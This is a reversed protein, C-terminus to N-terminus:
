TVQGTAAWEVARVLLRKFGLNDMAPADHGLLITLTRGKGYSGALVSPEWRGTGGQGTGSFSSALVEAGEALGPANWLEDRTSFSEIGETVPHPTKEARVQFEHIPGHSSQGDKWSALTLRHYDSWAPFSSSGAHVVVHGKGQRVFDLYAKRVPKPWDSTKPDLGFANWNSLIVDFPALRPPSLRGPAEDVTVEFRGSERLIEVLKPTTTRWDHNNQGSLILVRILKSGPSAAPSSAPVHSTLFLAAALVALAGSRRSM